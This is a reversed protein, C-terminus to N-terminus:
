SPSIVYVVWGLKENYNYNYREYRHNMILKCASVLLNVEWVLRSFFFSFLTGLLVIGRISIM